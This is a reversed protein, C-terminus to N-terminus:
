KNFIYQALDLVKSSYGSENDYWSIIKMFTKNLEIGAKSDFVSTLFEGNFDSSVVNDETYGLIGNFKNKSEYKIANCVEKYSTEKKFKVTLDVVSVNTTPVRFSTGTIKGNLDPIIKGVSDAAGTSTPIINNLCSRGIRFAQLSRGDVTNQTSTVSHVTTMLAEQIGFYDNLVKAIPALCNTTCSANSIIKEGNYLNNNVGMVFMPINDKPPATIIVKKAGSIIHNESAKKTLSLGTAEIVIDINLKKWPLNSPDKESFCYIKKDEIQIFNEKIYIKKLFKGHTSDFRLMYSIENISCLDNIAVINFNNRTQAIRFIMRGIRGFGNLAINLTM